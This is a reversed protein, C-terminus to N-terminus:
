CYACVGSPGDPGRWHSLTFLEMVWSLLKFGCLVEALLALARDTTSFVHNFNVFAVWVCLVSMQMCVGLSPPTAQRVTARVEQWVRVAPRGVM